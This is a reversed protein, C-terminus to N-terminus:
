SPFDWSFNDFDDIFIEVDIYDKIILKQFEPETLNYLVKLENKTTGGKLYIGWIKFITILREAEDLSPYPSPECTLGFFFDFMDDGLVNSPFTQIVEDLNKVSFNDLVGDTFIADYNPPTLTISGNCNQAGDHKADKKTRAYGSNSNNKCTWKWMGVTKSKTVKYNKSM